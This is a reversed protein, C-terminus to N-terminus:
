PTPKRSDSSGALNGEGSRGQVAQRVHQLSVVVQVVQDLSAIHDPIM